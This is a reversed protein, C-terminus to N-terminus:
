ARMCFKVFKWGASPSENCEADAFCKNGYLANYDIDKYEPTQFSTVELGREKNNM